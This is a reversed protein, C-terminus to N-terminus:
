SVSAVGVGAGCDRVHVHWSVCGMHGHRCCRWLSWYWSCPRALVPLSRRAHSAMDWAMCLCTRTCTCTCTCTQCVGDAARPCSVLTILLGTGRSSPGSGGSILHLVVPPLCLYPIRLCQWLSPVLVLLMANADDHARPRATYMGPPFLGSNGM